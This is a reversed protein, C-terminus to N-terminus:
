NMAAAGRLNGSRSAVEGRMRVLSEREKKLPPRGLLLECVRIREGELTVCVSAGVEGRQQFNREFEEAVREFRPDCFGNIEGHTISKKVTPFISMFLDEKIQECSM